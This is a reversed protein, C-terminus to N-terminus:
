WFKRNKIWTNKWVKTSSLRIFSTWDKKANKVLHKEQALPEDLPEEPMLTM